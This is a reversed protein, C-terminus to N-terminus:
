TRQSNSEFNYRQENFYLSLYASIDLEYNHIAKLITDKSMSICCTRPVFTRYPLQSNSEFNYRQENFYLETIFSITSKRNHIAKM